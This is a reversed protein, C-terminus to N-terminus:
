RDAGAVALTKPSLVEFGEVVPVVEGLPVGDTVFSGDSQSFGVCSRAVPNAHAMYVSAGPVPTGAAVVRGRVVGTLVVEVVIEESTRGAEVTVTVGGVGALGDATANVGWTGPLLGEVRLRGEADAMAGVSAAHDRGVRAAVGVGAGRGGARPQGQAGRPGRHGGRARAGRRPARTGRRARHAGRHRLRRRRVRDLARGPRPLASLATTTPTPASSATRACVRACSPAARPTACRAACPWPATASACSSRTPPRKQAPDTLDVQAIAAAREPAQAVVAYAAARQPGFDFRGDAATTAVLPPAAKVRALVSELRVEAGAVPAGEFLVRGAVRKAPRYKRGFWAPPPRKARELGVATTGAAVGGGATTGASGAAPARRGSRAWRLVAAAAAACVVIIVVTRSRRM